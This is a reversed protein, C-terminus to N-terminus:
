KSAKTKRTRKKSVKGNQAEESLHYLGLYIADFIDEQYELKSLQSFQSTAAKYMMDKDANVRGAFYKKVKQPGYIVHKVDIEYQAATTHFARHATVRAGEISALTNGSFGAKLRGELVLIASKPEQTLIADFKARYWDYLYDLKRYYDWHTKVEIVESHLLRKDTDMVVLGSKNLAVDLAILINKGTMSHM